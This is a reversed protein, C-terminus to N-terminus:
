AAEEKKKQEQQALEPWKRAFSTPHLNKRTVAGFSQKEILVSIEVGLEQGAAIAKRLYGITTGCKIAFEVQKDTPLSNLFERLCEM